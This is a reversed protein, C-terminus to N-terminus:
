IIEGRDHLVVTGAIRDAFTRRREDAFLSAVNAITGIPFVAGMALYAVFRLVSTDPSPKAGERAAVRLGLATKGPTAGAVSLFGIHYAASVAMM